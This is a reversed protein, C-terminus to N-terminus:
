PPLCQQLLSALAPIETIFEDISRERAETDVIRPGEPGCIVVALVEKTANFVYAYPQKESDIRLREIPIMTIGAVTIPTGAHLRNMM